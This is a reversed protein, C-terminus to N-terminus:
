FLVLQNDGIDKIEFVQRAIQITAKGQFIPQTGHSNFSAWSAWIKLGSCQYEVCPTDGYASSGGAIGLEYRLILELDEDSMESGSKEAWRKQSGTYSCVARKFARIRDELTLPRM